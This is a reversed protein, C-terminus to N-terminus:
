LLNRYFWWWSNVSSSCLLRLSIFKRILVAFVIWTCCHFFAQKINGNNCWLKMTKGHNFGCLDCLHRVWFSMEPLSAAVLYYTRTRTVIDFVFQSSPDKREYKVPVNADIQLKLDYHYMVVCCCILFKASHCWSFYSYYACTNGRTEEILHVQLNQNTEPTYASARGCVHTFNQFHICPV